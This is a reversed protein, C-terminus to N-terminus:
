RKLQDVGSGSGGHGDGKVDAVRAVVATTTTKCTGDLYGNDNNNKRTWVCPPFLSVGASM